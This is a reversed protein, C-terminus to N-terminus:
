GAQICDYSQELKNNTLDAIHYIPRKKSSDIRCCYKYFNVYFVKNISQKNSTTQPNINQNFTAYLCADIRVSLSLIYFANCTDVCKM